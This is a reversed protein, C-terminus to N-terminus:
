SPGKRRPRRLQRRTKRFLLRFPNRLVEIFPNRLIMQASEKFLAEPRFAWHFGVYLSILILLSDLGAVSVQQPSHGYRRASIGMVAMWVPVHLLAVALVIRAAGIRRSTATLAPAWYNPPWWPGLTASITAMDSVVIGLILPAMPRWAGSGCVILALHTLVLASSAAGYAVLAVAIRQKMQSLVRLV